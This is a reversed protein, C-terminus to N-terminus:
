LTLDDFLTKGKKILTGILFMLIIMMSFVLLLCALVESVVMRSFFYVFFPIIGILINVGLSLGVSLSQKIVSIEDTWELKPYFLNILLGNISVCLSFMLSVVLYLPYYLIGIKYCILFTTVTIPFFSLSFNALVKGWLISTSKVPNVKLIWLNKGELSISASTICVTSLCLVVLLLLIIPMYKSFNGMGAAAIINKFFDSGLFFVVISITILFILGFFTNVVYNTNSFYRSLERKCIAIVPSQRKFKLPLNKNKYGHFNYDLMKIKIIITILFIPISCLCILCFSKLNGDKIFSVIWKIPEMQMISSAKELDQSESITGIYYYFIVFVLLFIIIFISQIINSYKFKKSILQFILSIFYGLANSIMPILIAIIVARLILVITAKTMVVYVIYSPLISVLVVIFDFLYDYFLKAVIIEMKTIPMSRLLEYDQSKTTTTSKSITLLVIFILAMGANVYLTITEDGLKIASETTTVSLGVFLMMYILGFLGLFIFGSAIRGKKPNKVFKGLFCSFYNKILLRCNRM